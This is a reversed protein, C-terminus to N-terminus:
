KRDGIHKGTWFTHNDAASRTLSMCLGGHTEFYKPIWTERETGSFVGSGVIYNAVLDWYSGIRTETIPDHVDEAGFLACPVFPPDTDRRISKDVAALISEKYKPAAEAVRAATEHDGIEELVPIIDRLAAWCKANSSFSYVPQEIDTCYNDKPLLGHEGRNNMVWDLEAQWRPRMAKVFGADRTQWYFRCLTDLKHAAFHNTLRRDVLNLIVPLFRRMDREY